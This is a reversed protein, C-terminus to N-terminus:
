RFMETLQSKHPLLDWKSRCETVAYGIGEIKQSLNKAMLINQNNTKWPALDNCNELIFNYLVERNTGPPNRHIESTEM